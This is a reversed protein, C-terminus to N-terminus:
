QAGEITEERADPALPKGRHLVEHPRRWVVRANGEETRKYREHRLVMFHGKRLLWTEPLSAGVRWGEPKLPGYAPRNKNKWKEIDPAKTNLYCLLGIIARIIHAQLRKEQENFPETFKFTNKRDGLDEIVTAVPRDAFFRVPINAHCIGGDPAIYRLYVTDAMDYDLRVRSGVSDLFGNMSDVEAKQPAIAVLTSPMPGDDTELDDSFSVEFIRYPLHLESLQLNIETKMLSQALGSEVYYVKHSLLYHHMELLLALVEQNLSWKDFRPLSSLATALLTALHEALETRALKKGEAFTRKIEHTLGPYPKYTAM